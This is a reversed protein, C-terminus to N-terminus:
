GRGWCWDVCEPYVGRFAEGSVLDTAEFVDDIGEIAAIAFRRGGDVAGYRTDFPGDRHRGSNPILDTEWIITLM